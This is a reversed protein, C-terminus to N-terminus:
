SKSCFFYTKGHYESRGAAKSPDVAMGCVPDQVRITMLAEKNGCCCM